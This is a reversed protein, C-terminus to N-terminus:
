QGTAEAKSPNRPMLLGAAVLIVAVCTSVLFVTHIAPALVDPPLLELETTAGGLRGAVVGNVIAGFAAVGLASGISRAFMNVGTVMGRNEWSVSQQAVVVSPSAVFGLGLGIVSCAGM